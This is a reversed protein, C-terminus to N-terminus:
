DYGSREQAVFILLIELRGNSEKGIKGGWGKRLGRLDGKESGIEVGAGVGGM